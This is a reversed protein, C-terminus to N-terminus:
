GSVVFFNHVWTKESTPLARVRKAMIDSTANRPAQNGKDAFEWMGVVHKLTHAYRLIREQKGLLKVDQEVRVMRKFQRMQTTNQSQQSIVWSFNALQDNRM